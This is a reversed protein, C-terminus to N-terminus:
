WCKGRFGQSVFVFQLGLIFHSVDQCIGLTTLQLCLWSLGHAGTPFPTNRGSTISADSFATPLDFPDHFQIRLNGFHCCIVGSHHYLRMFVQFGFTGQKSQFLGQKPPLVFSLHTGPIYQYQYLINPIYQRTFTILEGAFSRFLESYQLCNWICLTLTRM